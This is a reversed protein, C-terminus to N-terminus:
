FPINDIQLEDIKLDNLEVTAVSCLVHFKQGHLRALRKAEDLASGYSAHKYTPTSRDSGERYVMFFAPQNM